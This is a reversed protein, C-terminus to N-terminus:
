GVGCSLQRGRHTMIIGSASRTLTNTTLSRDGHTLSMERRTRLDEEVVAGLHGRERQQEEASVDGDLLVLVLLGDGDVLPDDEPGRGAYSVEDFYACSVSQDSFCSNLHM